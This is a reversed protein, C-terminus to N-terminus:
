NFKIKNNDLFNQIASQPYFIKRGIQVFEIAGTDRYNQLTRPSVKLLKALESNNYFRSATKEKDTIVQILFDVKKTLEFLEERTIINIEM